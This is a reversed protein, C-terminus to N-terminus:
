GVDLDGCLTGPIYQIIEGDQYVFHHLRPPTDSLAEPGFRHINSVVERATFVWDREKWALIGENCAKPVAHNILQATFIYLGGRAIEFGEWTLLGAFRVRDLEFGTEERIERLICARPTEGPELHGGVGNWLGQNPPKSRHLMLVKDGHTIFGLTYRLDATTLM